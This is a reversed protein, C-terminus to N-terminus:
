NGAPIIASFVPHLVITLKVSYPLPFSKSVTGNLYPLLLRWQAAEVVCSRSSGTVQKVAECTKPGFIGDLAINQGARCLALQLYRVWTGRDGQYINKM